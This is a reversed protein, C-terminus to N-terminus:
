KRVAERAAQQWLLTAQETTFGLDRAATAFDGITSTSYSKRAAHLLAASRGRAAAAKNFISKIHDVNSM